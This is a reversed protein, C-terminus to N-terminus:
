IPLSEGLRAAQADGALHPALMTVDVGANGDPDRATVIGSESAQERRGDGRSDDITPDAVGAGHEPPSMLLGTSRVRACDENRVVDSTTSPDTTRRALPAHSSRETGIAGVCSGTVCATSSGQESYAKMSHLSGATPLPPHGREETKDILRQPVGGAIRIWTLGANPKSRVRRRGRAEGGGPSRDGVCVLIPQVVSALEPNCVRESRVQHEIMGFSARVTFRVPGGLVKRLGISTRGGYPDRVHGPVVLVAPRGVDVGWRNAWVPSESNM